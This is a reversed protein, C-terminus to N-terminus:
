GPTKRRLRITWPRPVQRFLQRWTWQQPSQNQWLGTKKKKNKCRRRWRTPAAVWASIRLAAFLASIASTSCIFFITGSMVHSIVKPWYTQSNINPTSTGLKFRQIWILGILFWDLAVRQPDTFCFENHSKSRKILMKIVAENDEFVYLLASPSSHTTNPPIDDINTPIVNTHKIPIPNHM